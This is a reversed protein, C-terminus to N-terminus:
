RGIGTYVFGRDSLRLPALLNKGDIVVPEEMLSLIRDYDLQAFEPWETLILLASAGQAAEYADAAVEFRASGDLESLDAKPDFARVTAGAGSLTKIVELAVSRRLTSTGAKYTLGLVGVGLGSIKSYRDLLRRVVLGARGRNVELVSELLPTTVRRTRGVERLVQIDRALTGGAFGLGAALFARPGIRPDAKLAEVVSLVDTGTVECLTAIENIFSVSTALFSNLAHKAMEASALSMTVFPAKMPAFLARVRDLAAADEAGVVVRDPHLYCRVADGLSLNEPACVLEVAKHRSSRQLERRWGGCTGVPVQSSVVVVAGDKLHPVAARIAQDLEALDLRDEDDVPTDFAIFLFDSDAVARADTTFSLRGRAVGTKILADLGAERIPAGGAELRGVVQASRDIGVVRHGLEAWSAAIVSGLHWLGVVAILEPRDM